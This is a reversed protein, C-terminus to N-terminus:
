TKGLQEMEEVITKWNRDNRKISIFENITSVRCFKEVLLERIIKLYDIM